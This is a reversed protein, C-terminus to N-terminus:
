WNEVIKITQETLWDIMQKPFETLLAQECEVEGNDQPTTDLLTVDPELQTDASHPKSLPTAEHVMVRGDGTFWDM